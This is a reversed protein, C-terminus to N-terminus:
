QTQTPCLHLLAEPCALLVKAQLQHLHAGAFATPALLTPVDCAGEFLRDGANYLLEAFGAVQAGGEILLLSGPSNDAAAEYDSM